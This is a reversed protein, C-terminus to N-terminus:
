GKIPLVEAELLYSGEPVTTGAIELSVAIRNYPASDAPLLAFGQSSENTSIAGASTATGDTDNILWVMFVENNGAAPLGSLVIVGSRSVTLYVEGRLAAPAIDAPEMVYLTANAHQRLQANDVKLKAIEDAQQRNDIYMWSGLGLSLITIIALIISYPSIGAPSSIPSPKM